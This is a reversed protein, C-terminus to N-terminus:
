PLKRCYWQYWESLTRVFVSSPLLTLGLAEHMRSFREVLQAVDRAGLHQTQSIFLLRATKM